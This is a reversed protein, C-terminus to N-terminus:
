STIPSDQDGKLFSTQFEDKTNAKPFHEAPISTGLFKCLPEWGESVQYVLLREPPVAIEIEENRRLYAKIAYDRDEFKGDFNQEFAIKKMLAHQAREKPDTVSERQLIMQYVTNYASEYWSEADRVTLVVKAKPYHNVLERWFHAPPLDVAASYGAFLSDWDVPKRDAADAWVPVHDPHKFVERMHYCKRFGLIELALKLSLTGTRGFGAGIVSLAM